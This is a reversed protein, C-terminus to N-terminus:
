SHTLDHDYPISRFSRGNRREKIVNWEGGEERPIVRTLVSPKAKAAKHFYNAVRLKSIFLRRDEKM